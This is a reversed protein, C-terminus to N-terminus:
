PLSVSYFNADALQFASRYFYMYDTGKAYSLICLVTAVFVYKLLAPTVTCTTFLLRFDELKKLLPNSYVLPFSSFM